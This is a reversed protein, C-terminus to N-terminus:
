EVSLSVKKKRMAEQLIEYHKNNPEIEYPMYAHINVKMSCLPCRIVSLFSHLSVIKVSMKVATRRQRDTICIYDFAISETTLLNKNLVTLGEKLSPIGKDTNVKVFLFRAQGNATPRAVGLQRAM